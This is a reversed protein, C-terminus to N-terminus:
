ASSDIYLIYGALYQLLFQSMLDGSVEVVFYKLYCLYAIM